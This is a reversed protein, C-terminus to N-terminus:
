LDHEGDFDRAMAYWARDDSEAFDPFDKEGGFIMQGVNAGFGGSFAPVM